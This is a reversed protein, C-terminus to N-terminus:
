TDNYRTVFRWIRPIRESAAQYRSPAHVDSSSEDVALWSHLSSAHSLWSGWLSKFTISDQSCGRMKTCLELALISDCSWESVFWKKCGLVLKWRTSARTVAMTDNHALDVLNRCKANIGSMKTMATFSQVSGQEGPLIQHEGRGCVTGCWGWHIAEVFLPRGFVAWFSGLVVGNKKGRHEGKKHQQQVDGFIECRAIGGVCKALEHLASLWIALTWLRVAFPTLTDM